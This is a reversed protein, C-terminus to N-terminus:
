ISRFLNSLMQMLTNQLYSSWILQLYGLNSVTIGPSDLFKPVMSNYMYLCKFLWLWTFPLLLCARQRLKMHTKMFSFKHSPYEGLTYIQVNKAIATYLYGHIMPQIDEQPFRFKTVFQKVILSPIVGFLQMLVYLLLIMKLFQCWILIANLVVCFFFASPQQQILMAVDVGCYFCPQQSLRLLRSYNSSLGMIKLPMM